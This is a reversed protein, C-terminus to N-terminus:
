RACTKESARLGHAFPRRTKLAGPSGSRWVFLAVPVLGFLYRLFVIQAPAYTQGLWKATADAISFFFVATLISAIGIGVRDAGPTADPAADPAALGPPKTTM